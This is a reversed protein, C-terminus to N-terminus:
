AIEALKVLKQIDDFFLQTKARNRLIYAPHYTPLLTYDRCSIVQGHIETIKYLKETPGNLLGKLAASGLTCIVAPQIIHIQKLLMFDRGTKLEHLSPTRNNPPRCKVINTIFVDSRQLGARELARNLLQGSPGVFPRGEEDEVKGPAEGIFMIAADPNGEGFIIKTCADPIYLPSKKFEGHPAYLENLLGQKLAQRQETTRRNITTNMAGISIQPKKNIATKTYVFKTHYRNQIHV